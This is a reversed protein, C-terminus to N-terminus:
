VKIPHTRTIELGGEIKALTFPEDIIMKVLCALKATKGDAALVEDDKALNKILTEQPGEQGEKFVM